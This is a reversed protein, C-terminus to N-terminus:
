LLNYVLFVMQNMKRLFNFIYRYGADQYSNLQFPVSSGAGESLFLFTVLISLLHIRGSVIDFIVMHNRYSSVFIQFLNMLFFHSLSTQQWCNASKLKRNKDQQIVRLCNCINEYYKMNSYM